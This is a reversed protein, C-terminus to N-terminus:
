GDDSCTILESLELQFEPLRFLFSVRSEFVHDKDESFFKQAAKVAM